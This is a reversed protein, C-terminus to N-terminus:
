GNDLLFGLTIAVMKKNTDIQPQDAPKVVDLPANSPINKNALKILDKNDEYNIEVKNKLEEDSYIVLKKSEVVISSSNSDINEIGSISSSLVSKYNNRLCDEVTLIKENKLDYTLLKNTTSIVNVDEDYRNIKLNLNIYQNYVENISYDMYIIDKSKKNEKQEKLYNEYFENVIKNLEKSETEPYYMSIYLNDSEDKYHKVEGISKNDESYQNFQDYISDKNFFYFIGGIIIAVILLIIIVYKIKRDAEHSGRAYSYKM